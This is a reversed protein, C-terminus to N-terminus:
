EELNQAFLDEGEGEAEEDDVDRVADREDLSDDTDSFPAPPSSPPLSSQSDRRTPTPRPIPSSGAPPSRPRKNGRPTRQSQKNAVNLTHVPFFLPFHIGNRHDAPPLTFSSLRRPRTGILPSQFRTLM